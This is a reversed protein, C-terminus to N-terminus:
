DDTREEKPIIIKVRTFKGEESEVTMQSKEGYIIKLRRYVNKIGIKESDFNDTENYETIEATKERSMGEGNDYFETELNGGKETVTVFFMCKKDKIGYFVANEAFPQMIMKLIKSNYLSKDCKIDFELNKYRCKLFELYDHLFELEEKLTVFIDDSIYSYKVIRSLRTIMKLSDAGYGCENIVSVGLVTLSNNIFHPTIQKQLAKHQMDNYDTIKKEVEKKLMENDNILYVIKDSIYKIENDKLTKQQKKTEFIEMFDTIYSFSDMSMYASIFVMIGLLAAFIIIYLTYMNKVGQMYEADDSCIICDYGYYYSQQHGYVLGEKKLFGQEGDLCQEIWEPKKYSVNSYVVEGNIIIYVLSDTGSVNELKTKINYVDLEVVVYTPNEAAKKIFYISNLFSDPNKQFAIKYSGTYNNETENFWFENKFETKPLIDEGSVVCGAKSNYIYVNKVGTNYVSWGNVADLLKEKQYPTIKEADSLSMFHNVDKNIFTKAALYEAERFFNEFLVATKKLEMTNKSMLDKRMSVNLTNYAITMLVTAAAAFVILIKLAKLVLVSNLGYSRAYRLINRKM